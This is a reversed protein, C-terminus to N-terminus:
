LEALAADTLAYIAPLNRGQEQFDMGYGFVYRDPVDVGFYDACVGEVCRDHRKVALAAIRVDAAGEDRCWQVIGRLTHGEDLIDDALLVRRGKLSTAPRHKWTLEGGTTGSRYRTAHLYDFQLDVGLAGVEMALRGAFPLGGHMVTLFLPVSGKFDDAIPQAMRAIAGDLTDRDHILDSNALAWALDRAM